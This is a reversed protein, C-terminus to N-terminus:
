LGQGKVSALRTDVATRWGELQSQRPRRVDGSPDITLGVELNLNRSSPIRAHRNGAIALTPVNLPGLRTSITM